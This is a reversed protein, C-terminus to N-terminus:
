RHYCSGDDRKEWANSLIEVAAKWIETSEGIQTGRWRGRGMMDQEM